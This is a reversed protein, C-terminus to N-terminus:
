QRPRRRILIPLLLGVLLLASVLGFIIVPLVWPASDHFADVLPRAFIAGLAAGLGGLIAGYIARRVPPGPERSKSNSM